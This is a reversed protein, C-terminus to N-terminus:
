KWHVALWVTDEQESTSAVRHRRHAPIEIWDGPKLTVPENSDEFILEGEGKLILVWESTDQDYWFDSPSRHGRSIIREIR